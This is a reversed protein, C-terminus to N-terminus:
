KALSIAVGFPIFDVSIAKTPNGGAPWNWFMVTNSGANAAVLVNGLVFFQSDEDAQNLTVLGTEIGKKGRIEFRYIKTSLNGISLRDHDWQLGAPHMMEHLRIPRFTSSRRPLEGYTYSISVNTRSGDIFLNGKDDYICYAPYAVHPDYYYKALGRAGQWIAVNGPGYPPLQTNNTVALNGTTPDIACGLPIYSYSEGPGDQLIATPKRAGHGYEFIQASGAAYPQTVIFVDGAKDVCEGAPQGMDNKLEGVLKGGPYSFVAVENPSLSSM